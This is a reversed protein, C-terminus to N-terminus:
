RPLYVGRGLYTGQLIHDITICLVLLLGGREAVSNQQKNNDSDAPPIRPMRVLVSHVTCYATDEESGLLEQERQGQEHPGAKQEEASGRGPSLNSM